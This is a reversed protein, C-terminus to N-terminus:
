DIAEDTPNEPYTFTQGGLGEKTRALAKNAVSPALWTEAFKGARARDLM